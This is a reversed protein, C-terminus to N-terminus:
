PQTKEKELIDHPNKSQSWGLFKGFFIVVLIYTVANSLGWVMSWSQFSPYKVALINIILGEMIALIVFILTAANAHFSSFYYLKRLAFNVLVCILIFSFFNLM